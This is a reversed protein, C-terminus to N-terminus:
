WLDLTFRASFPQGFSERLLVFEFNKFWVFKEISYTGINISTLSYVITVLIPYLYVGSLLILAPSLFIWALRKEKKSNPSLLQSTNNKKM